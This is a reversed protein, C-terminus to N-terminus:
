DEDRVVLGPESSPSRRRKQPRQRPSLQVPTVEKAKGLAGGRDDRWETAEEAKTKNELPAKEGGVKPVPPLKWAERYSSPLCEDTFLSKGQKTLLNYHQRRSRHLLVYGLQHVPNPNEPNVVVCPSGGGELLTDDLLLIKLHLRDLVKVVAFHDAWVCRALGAATSDQAIREQLEERSSVSLKLFWEFGECGAGAMEKYLAYSEDDIQSSM